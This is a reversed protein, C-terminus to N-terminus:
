FNIHHLIFLDYPSYVLSNKEYCQEEWYSAYNQAFLKQDLSPNSGFYNM